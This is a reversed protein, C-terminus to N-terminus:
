GDHILGSRCGEDGPGKEGGLPSFPLQVTLNMRNMLAIRKCM